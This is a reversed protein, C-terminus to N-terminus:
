GCVQFLILTIAIFILFGTFDWTVSALWYAKRSLGCVLQLHKVKNSREEILMLVFGAAVFGVAFTVTLPNM